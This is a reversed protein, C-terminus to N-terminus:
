AARAAKRRRRGMACAGGVCGLLTLMSAPEPVPNVAGVANSTGTVVRITEGAGASVGLAGGGVVPYTVLGFDGLSVPGPGGGFDFPRSVPLFALSGPPGLTELSSLSVVLDPRFSAPVGGGGGPNRVGEAYNFNSSSDAISFLAEVNVSALDSQISAESGLAGFSSFDGSVLAAAATGGNAFSALQGNNLLTSLQNASALDFVSGTATVSILMGLGNNNGDFESGGDNGTLEYFLTFSDGADVMGNVGLDTMYGSVSFNLNNQVGDFTGDDIIKPFVGAANASTSALLLALLAFYKTM